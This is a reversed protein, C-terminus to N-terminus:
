LRIRLDPHEAARVALMALVQKKRVDDYGDWESIEKLTRLCGRCYGSEEDTTCVSICPSPIPSKAARKRRM